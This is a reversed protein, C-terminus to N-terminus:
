PAARKFVVLVLGSNPETAFQIPRDGKDASRDCMKFTDDQLEYIGQLRRGDSPFLDIEKPVATPDLEFSTDAVRNSGDYVIWHDGSLIMTYKMIESDPKREGEVEMSIFKWTGEFRKFERAVEAPLAPSSPPVKPARRFKIFGVVTLLIAVALVVLWIRRRNM